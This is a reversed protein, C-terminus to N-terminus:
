IGTKPHRGQRENALTAETSVGSVIPAATLAPEHDLVGRRRQNGSDFPHFREVAVGTQAMAQFPVIATDIQDGTRLVHPMALLTYGLTISFSRGVSWHLTVGFEPVVGFRNAAYRGVRSPTALFGYGREVVQPTTDDGDEPRIALSNGSIGLIQHVNGFALKALLELKLFGHPLHTEIGLDVGHFESWTSFSDEVHIEGFRKKTRPTAIFSRNGDADARRPLSPLSVGCALRVLVRRSGCLTETAPVGAANLDSSSDAEIQGLNLTVSTDPM